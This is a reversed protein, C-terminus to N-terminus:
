EKKRMGGNLCRVECKLAVDEDRLDRMVRGLELPCEEGEALPELRGLEARQMAAFTPYHEGIVMLFQYVALYSSVRMHTQASERVLKEYRLCFRELNKGDYRLNWWDM